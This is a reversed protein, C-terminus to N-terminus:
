NLFWPDTILAALPSNIIRILTTHLDNIIHSSSCHISLHNKLVLDNYKEISSMILKCSHKSENNHPALLKSLSCCNWSQFYQSTSLFCYKVNFLTGNRGFLIGCYMTCSSLQDRELTIRACRRLLYIVLFNIVQNRVM